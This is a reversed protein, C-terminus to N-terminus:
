RGNGQNKNQQTIRQKMRQKILNQAKRVRNALERFYRFQEQIFDRLKSLQNDLERARTIITQKRETHERTADISARTRETIERNRNNIRSRINDLEGGIANTNSDIRWQQSTNSREKTNSHLIKRKNDNHTGAISSLTKDVSVMCDLKFDDNSANWMYLNDNDNQKKNSISKLKQIDAKENRSRYFKAKERILEDLTRELKASLETNDRKDYARKRENADTYIAEIDRISTFKEDYIGGKFRKAKQSNPLKVSIYDKGQRTVEINQSKLLAILNNRSKINGKIAEDTLLKDLAEYDQILEIQKKNGQITNEKAPDKPDTLNYKLNTLDTWTDKLKFDAKHFYPNFARQSELDIKPIVFNLELRGKDTHEVWLINYRGQMASTLFTNEFSQMIEQKASESLEKEEFSLCGVCAKHKQKLSLIINRTTQEDGQLIRATGQQKRENLLYNISSVGGGNRSPFFKVVM